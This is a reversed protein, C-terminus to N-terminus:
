NLRVETPTRCAAHLYCTQEGMQVLKECESIPEATDLCVLTSVPSASPTHEGAPIFGIDQVIRYDDLEKKAIAAYRGIQTMFCFAVGCSLWTMGNPARGQGGSDESEDSLFVFRSGAPQICQVAIEKLGDTRVRGHTAVHVQRKQSAQLGVAPNTTAGQAPTTVKKIIDDAQSFDTDPSCRDFLERPDARDFLQASTVNAPSIREDNVTLAFMSSLSDQLIANAVSRECVATRGIEALEHRSADGEAIFGINVEDAKAAMTGKLASGEMSFFNDQHIELGTIPVMRALAEAMYDSLFGAALGATFFALPFPALDTGNLWPGEDCVIRWIAGTPGYQVIAEKQMGALPRAQVRIRSQAATPALHNATFSDPDVRFVLPYPSQEISSVALLGPRERDPAHRHPRARSEASQKHHLRDLRANPCLWRAFSRM